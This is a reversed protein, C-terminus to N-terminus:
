HDDVEVILELHRQGNSKDTVGLWCVLGNGNHDHESPAALLHFDAPCQGDAHLPQATGFAFAIMCAAGLAYLTRRNM